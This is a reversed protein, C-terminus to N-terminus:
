TPTQWTSLKFGQMKELITLYEHTDVVAISFPSKTLLQGCNGMKLKGNPIEFQGSGV